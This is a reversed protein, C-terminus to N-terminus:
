SVGPIPALASVQMSAASVAERASRSVFREMWAAPHDESIYENPAAVKPAVKYSPRPMPISRPAPLEYQRALYLAIPVPTPPAFIYSFQGKAVLYQVIKRREALSTGTVPGKPHM